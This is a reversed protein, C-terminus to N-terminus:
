LKRWKMFEWISMSKVSRIVANDIKNKILQEDVKNQDELLQKEKQKVEEERRLLSENFSELNEKKNDMIRNLEREVYSIVDEKGTFSYASNYNDVWAVKNQNIKNKFEYLDLYDKLDLEVKSM